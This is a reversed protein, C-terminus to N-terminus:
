GAATSPARRALPERAPRTELDSTIPIGRLAGLVMNHSLVRAHIRELTERPADSVLTARVHLSVYCHRAEAPARFGALEDFEGRPDFVGEVVFDVRDLPVGLHAALMPYDSGACAAAAAFIQEWPYLVDPPNDRLSEPREIRPPAYPDRTGPDFRYRARYTGRVRDGHRAFAGVIEEVSNVPEGFVIPM